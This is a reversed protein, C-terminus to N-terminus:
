QLGATVGDDQLRASNLSCGLSFQADLVDDADDVGIGALAQQQKSVPVCSGPCVVVRVRGVVLLGDHAGVIAGATHTYQELQCTLELGVAGCQTHVDHKNVGLVHAYVIIFFGPAEAGLIPSLVGM